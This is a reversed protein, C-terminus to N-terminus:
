PQEEQNPRSGWGGGADRFTSWAPRLANLQIETHNSGAMLWMFPESNCIARPIANLPTAREDARALEIIRCYSCPGSESDWLQWEPPCLPDHTM